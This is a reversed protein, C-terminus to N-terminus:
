QLLVRISFLIFTVPIRNFRGAFAPYNNTLPHVLQADAFDEAERLLDEGTDQVQLRPGDVITSV